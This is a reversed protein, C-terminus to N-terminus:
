RRQSIIDKKSLSTVIKGDNQSITEAPITFMRGDLLMQASGDAAVRYISGLRRGDASFIAQGAKAVPAAAEASAPAAADQATESAIAPVAILSAAALTVFARPFRM